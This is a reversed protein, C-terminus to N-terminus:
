MKLLQKGRRRLLGLGALGSFLLLFAPPIPTPTLVFAHLGSGNAQRMWGTIQGNDNIGTAESLIWGNSIADTYLTNLDIPASGYSNWLVARDGSGPAPSGYGVIQGSSNIDYAYIRRGSGFTKLNIAGAAQSWFFAGFGGASEGVVQGSNNIGNALSGNAVVGLDQMGSSSSWIFAHQKSDAGVYYGVAQGADNIRRASSLGGLSGMDQMGSTSDWIFAHRVGTGTDSIGVVQGKNNVGNASSTAGGTLTGLDQFNSNTWLFAHSNYGDGVVQGKDNIGPISGSTLTVNLSQMTGNSSLFETYVPSATNYSRGVVQGSNNIDWAQTANNGTLTGLDTLTYSTASASGCASALAVMGMSIILIKRSINKLM